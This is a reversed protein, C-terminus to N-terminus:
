PAGPDAGPRNRDAGDEAQHGNPVRLCPRSPLCRRDGRVTVKATPRCPVPRSRRGAGAPRRTRRSRVVPAVPLEGAQLERVAADRSDTATIRVAQRAITPSFRGTLAIM